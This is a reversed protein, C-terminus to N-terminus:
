GLVEWRIVEKMDIRIVARDTVVTSHPYSIIFEKVDQIVRSSGDRYHFTLIMYLILLINILKAM